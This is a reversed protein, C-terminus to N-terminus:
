ADAIGATRDNARAGLAREVLAQTARSGYERAMASLRAADFQAEAMRYALAREIEQVDVGAEDAHEILDIVYWEPTPRPPFRVRRLRYRQRGFTFLGSRKTNYVLAAPFMATSGLGLPNWYEPGTLIFPAGDLFATLVAQDSPSMPGYATPTPSALLGHALRVLRGERELRRALRPANKGWRAFDRTRYVRGPELKPEAPAGM